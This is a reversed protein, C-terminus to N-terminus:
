DAIERTTILSRSVAANIATREPTGFEPILTSISNFLTEVLEPTSLDGLQKNLQERFTGTYIAGSIADGISQGLVGIMVILAVMQATEKHPVNVTAAVYSGTQVIGDGIGQIFQVVFLEGMTPNSTRIRFMVGYGIIRIFLGGVIWWKYSRTKWMVLGFIIGTTFNVTGNIYSLNTAQVINFGQAILAWNFLFGHSAAAAMYDSFYLLFALCISRNKLYRVPLLPHTAVKGEYFPLALLLMLAGIVMLAIIWPTTYGEPQLSALSLPLLIFALGIIMISLGCVDIASCIDYVSMRPRPAYELKKVRREYTLLLSMIGVVGFPYIIALIGIGWAWGIGGASVVASVIYASVWPLILYPWFQVNVGFGRQRTSTLDVIVVTNMTNVCTIGVIRLVTGIAFAYFNQSSAAVVLGITTFVAAAPYM